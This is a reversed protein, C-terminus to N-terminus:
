TGHQMCSTHLRAQTNYAGPCPPIGTNGYTRNYLYSVENLDDSWSVNWKVTYQQYTFPGVLEVNPLAGTNM